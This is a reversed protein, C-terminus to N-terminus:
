CVYAIFMGSLVLGWKSFNHLRWCACCTILSFCWV